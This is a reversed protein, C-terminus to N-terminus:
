PIECNGNAHGGGCFDCTISPQTPSSTMDNVSSPKGLNESVKATSNMVSMFRSQQALLADQMNLNLAGSSVNVQNAQHQVMPPTIPGHHYHNYAMRILLEQAEEPIKYSISGEASADVIFKTVQLLCNYFTQVQLWLPIAHHPCKRLLEKFREWAEGLSEGVDQKFSTIENRLKVTRAPPFYKALFEQALQNWTTFIGQAHSQLWSKARDRLSFPFVRMRVCDPHVENFKFTDLVEEFNTLHTYHDENPGGGFMAHAQLMQILTPKIKFNKAQVPMRAISSNAGDFNPLAYERLPRGNGNMGNENRYGGIGNNGFVEQKENKMNVNGQHANANAMEIMEKDQQVRRLRRIERLEKEREKDLCIFPEQVGRVM